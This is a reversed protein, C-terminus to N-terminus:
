FMYAQHNRAPMIRTFQTERMGQGLSSDCETSQEISSSSVSVDPRDSSNNLTNNNNLQQCLTAQSAMHNMPAMQTFMMDPNMAVPYMMAGAAASGGGGPAATGAAGAPTLAGQAQSATWRWQAPSQPWQTPTFGGAGPPSFYGLATPAGAGQPALLVPYSATHAQPSFFYGDPHCLVAMSNPMTTYALGGNQYIYAAAAATAPMNPECLKQFPQQKRIAPGVNLKKDKFMLNQGEKKIIREADEQNEFTVFGYSKSVGGRDLIIKCDKVHGYAAFFFKLDNESTDNSIGGVFIRNPILTGFKQIQSPHNVPTPTLCLSSERSSTTFKNM